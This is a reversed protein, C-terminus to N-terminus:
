INDEGNKRELFKLQIENSFYLESDLKIAAQRHLEKQFVSCIAFLNSGTYSICWIYEVLLFGVCLVHNAHHIFAM